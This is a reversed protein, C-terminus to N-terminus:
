DAIPRPPPPPPPPPSPPPSPALPAAPGSAPRIQPHGLSGALELQYSGDPSRFSALAAEVLPKLSATGQKQWLSPSLRLRARGAIPAYEMRQQLVLALSDGTIEAEGGRAELREVTVRGQTVKAAARVSGLAVPPVNLPSMGPVPVQGGAIGAQDLSLELTGSAKDPAGGPFTLDAHGSAKGALNLRTANRLPLARRLDLGEVAVEVRPAAGGLEASGEVTGDYVRARYALVRRGLLLPLPELSADLREVPVKLGAADTLTVEELVVGLLAGPRVHQMDIQWGRAGAEYILRERVAEAPFSSRLSFALAAVAFAGYLLRPRLRALFPKM